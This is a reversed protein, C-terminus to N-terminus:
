ARLYPVSGTCEGEHFASFDQEVGVHSDIVRDGHKVESPAAVYLEDGNATHVAVDRSVEGGDVSTAEKLEAAEVVNRDGVACASWHSLRESGGLPYVAFITEAIGVLGFRLASRAGLIRNRLDQAEGALHGALNIQEGNARQGIKPECEAKIRLKSPAHARNHHHTTRNGM